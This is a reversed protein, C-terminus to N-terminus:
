RADEKPGFIFIGILFLIVTIFFGGVIMLIWNLVPIEIRWGLWFVGVAAAAIPVIKLIDIIRPPPTPTVQSPDTPIGVDPGQPDYLVLQHEFALQAIADLLGQASPGGSGDSRSTYRLRLQLASM